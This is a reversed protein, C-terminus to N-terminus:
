LLLSLEAVQYATQISLCSAIFRNKHIFILEEPNDLNLERKSKLLLRSKFPIRDDSPITRVKWKNNDPYIIFKIKTENNLNEYKKISKVWNTCNEKVILIEPHKRESMSKTIINFDKKYQNEIEYINFLVIKMLKIVLESAELFKSLQAEYNNTDLNNMRSIISSINTNIKFKNDINSIGNDIADIEIIFNYYFKNVLYDEDNEIINKIMQKGFKKFVLGASSMPINDYRLNFTNQHHDFRNKEEDYIGGVDIVVDASNIIEEDRSRVLQLNENNIALKLISYATIEDAHFRGDHTVIIM